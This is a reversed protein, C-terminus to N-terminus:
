KNNLKKIEEKKIKIQEVFDAFTHMDPNSNWISGLEELTNADDIMPIIDQMKSIREDTKGSECWDKILKGTDETILFPLENVFLGTRDKSCTTNHDQSVDFVVTYEYAMGSAQEEKLGKKVINKRGKEDEEMVYEEKKRVSSIVHVPAQLLAKKVRNFEGKGVQWHNFQGGLKGVIEQVYDWLHTISDIIIVEIGSKVCENIAKIYTDADYKAIPITWFEGIGLAASEAYLSASENETDIVCIKSWDGCLGYAMKLAGVTKGSGSAGGIQLKIKVKKRSAKQLM